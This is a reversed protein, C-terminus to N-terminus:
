FLTGRDQSRHERARRSRPGHNGRREGDGGNALRRLARSLHQLRGGADRYSRPHRLDAFEQRGPHQQDMRLGEGSRARSPACTIRSRTTTATTGIRCHGYRRTDGQEFLGSKTRAKEFGYNMEYRRTKGQAMSNPLLFPLLVARQRCAATTAKEAPSPSGFQRQGSDGVRACNKWSLSEGRLSAVARREGAD